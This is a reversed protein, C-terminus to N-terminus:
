RLYLLFTQITQSLSFDVNLLIRTFAELIWLGLNQLIIYNLTIQNVDKQYITM